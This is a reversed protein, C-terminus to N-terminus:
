SYHSSNLRTSKRDTDGCDGKIVALGNPNNLRGLHSPDRLIELVRPSYIRRAEEWFAKELEEKIIKLKEEDKM